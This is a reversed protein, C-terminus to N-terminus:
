TPDATARLLLEAGLLQQLSAALDVTADEAVALDSAEALTAGGHLADWLAATAPSLATVSVQQHQRHVLTHSAQGFDIRMEGAYGAQNVRWIDALPWPSDFRASAPSLTFRLEGYNDPACAALGSLDIPAPDAAYYVEQVQWELRAVDALYPLDRAHPYAALFDAFDQGYDNLDGSPSAHSTLYQRAAERFFAAGVINAVVPYTALLARSLNGYISRRYAALRSQRSAPPDTLAALLKAEGSAPSFIAAYFDSQLEPLSSM